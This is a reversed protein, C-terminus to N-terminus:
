RRVLEVRRNQARGQGTTNDAVPKADGFRRLHM